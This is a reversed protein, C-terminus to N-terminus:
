PTTQRTPAPRCTISASNPYHAPEPPDGGGRVVARTYSDSVDATPIDFEFNEYGSYPRAKRLDFDLGAARLSAGTIGWDIAEEATYSGIGVTRAKLIANRLCM